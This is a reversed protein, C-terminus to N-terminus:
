QGREEWKVVKRLWEAYWHEECIQELMPLGIEGRGGLYDTLQQFYPSNQLKNEWGRLVAGLVCDIQFKNYINPNM